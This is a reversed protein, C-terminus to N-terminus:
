KLLVILRLSSANIKTGLDALREQTNTGVPQFNIGNLTVTMTGTTTFSASEITATTSASADVGDLVSFQSAIAGASSPPTVPVTVPNIDVTEISGDALTVSVTQAPYGNETGVQVVGINVGDSDLTSGSQTLVEESSDLNLVSEVDTTRSPPLDNTEVVLDGLVGSVTGTSDAQFGQVRMGTNNVMFGDKDVGFQGARSYKAEGQDSLVFMGNGTIALDLSNDTFSVNGQSFLQRVNQVSVGDGTGASGGGLFSNAYVDGFEARSLKFGVTSANAINNGTVELETASARLGSLAVNFTM